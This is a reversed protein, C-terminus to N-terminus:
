VTFFILQQANSIYPMFYNTYYIKFYLLKNNSKKM